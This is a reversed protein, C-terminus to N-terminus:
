SSAEIFSRTMHPTKPSTINSFWPWGASYDQCSILPPLTCHSCDCSRPEGFLNTSTAFGVAYRDGGYGNGSYLLYYRGDHKWMFPAEVVGGEWDMDNKFLKIQLMYLM